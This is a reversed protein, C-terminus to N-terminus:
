QWYLEAVSDATDEVLAILRSALYLLAGAVVLWATRERAYLLSVLIAVAADIVAWAASSALLSVRRLMRRREVGLADPLELSAVSAALMVAAGIWLPLQVWWSERRLIGAVGLTVLTAGFAVRAVRGALHSAAARRAAYTEPIKEPWDSVASAMRAVGVILAISWLLDYLIMSGTMQSM